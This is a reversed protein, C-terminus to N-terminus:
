RYGPSQYGLGSSGAPVFDGQVPLGAHVRGPGSGAWDTVPSREWEAYRGSADTGQKTPSPDGLADTFVADGPPPDVVYRSTEADWWRVRYFGSGPKASASIDPHAANWGSDPSAQVWVSSSDLHIPGVLGPFWSIMHHGAYSFGDDGLTSVARLDVRRLYVPGHIPNQEEALTIGQYSSTGSLGDVRLERQAGWTQILDPHNGAPWGNDGDRDDSNRFHVNVIRVNEIQVTATPAVTDIGESLDSGDILLGEIHVVRPQRHGPIRTDAIVLARRDVAPPRAGQDDIRIHGGIWVVNRGGRIVVPRTVTWPALVRYDRDPDLVILGGSPPVSVAEFHQWGPPPAWTLKPLQSPAEFDRDRNGLLQTLPALLLLLVVCGIFLVGRHRRRRGIGTEIELLRGEPACEAPEDAVPEDLADEVPASLLGEPPM